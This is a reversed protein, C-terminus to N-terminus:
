SEMRRPRPSPDAPNQATGPPFGADGLGLVRPPLEFGAAIKLALEARRDLSRRDASRTRRYAWEAEWYDRRAWAWGLAPAILGVAMIAWFSWEHLNVELPGSGNLAATM